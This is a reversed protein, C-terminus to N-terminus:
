TIKLQKVKWAGVKVLPLAADQMTKILRYKSDPTLLSRTAVTNLPPQQNDLLKTLNRTVNKSVENDRKQKKKEIEVPNICEPKRLCLKQTKGSKQNQCRECKMCNSIKCTKCEGCRKVSEQLKRKKSPLIEDTFSNDNTNKYKKILEVENESESSSTM